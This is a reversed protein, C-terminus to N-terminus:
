LVETMKNALFPSVPFKEVITKVIQDFEVNVLEGESLDKLNTVKLTEPILQLEVVGEQSDWHNVTLSVGNVCLSGKPVVWRVHDRKIRLRVRLTSEGEFAMNQVLAVGDVHGSVLHGGLRDGLRLSRELNLEQSPKWYQFSTVAVTELSVFFRMQLSDFDELTLCIGNVAVSEGRVLDLWEKPKRVLISYGNYRKEVSFLKTKDTVLGTFM